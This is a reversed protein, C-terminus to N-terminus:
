DDTRNRNILWHSQALRLTSSLPGCILTFAFHGLKDKGSFLCWRDLLFGKGRRDTAREREREAYETIDCSSSSSTRKQKLYTLSKNLCKTIPSNPARKLYSKWDLALYQVSQFHRTCVCVQDDLLRYRHTLTHTHRPSPNCMVGMGCQLENPKTLGRLGGENLEGRREARNKKKKKKALQWRYHVTIGGHSCTKLFNQEIRECLAKAM